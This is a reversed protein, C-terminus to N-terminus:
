GEYAEEGDGDLHIAHLKLYYSPDEILHDKAIEKAIERDRTHELEVKIGRALEQPDFASDPRYDGRGGPLQGIGFASASQLSHTGRRYLWMGLLGLTLVGGFSLAVNKWPIKATAMPQETLKDALQLAFARAAAPQFHIGDTTRGETSSLPRADIVRPGFAEALTGYVLVSNTTLQPSTFVPPGVAWVEAGMAEYTDRIKTISGADMKGAAADNTGLMVIVKTPQFAKDSTILTAATNQQWKNPATWFNRASRGVNANIRVAKAGREVLLSGLLDGPAASVRNSGSVVDWIEPAASQGHHSLSDGFILIREGGVNM